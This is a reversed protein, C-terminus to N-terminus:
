TASPGPIPAIGAPEDLPTAFEEPTETYIFEVRRQESEDLRDLVQGYVLSQRAADSMAAFSPSIVGALYRLGHRDGPIVRVRIDELPLERLITELKAAFDM